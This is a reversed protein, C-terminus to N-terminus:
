IMRLKAPSSRRALFGNTMNHDFHYETNIIYRIRGLKAIERAYEEVYVTDGPADIMVVGESTVLYGFNCGRTETKIFVNKSLQETKM